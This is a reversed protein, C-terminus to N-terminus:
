RNGYQKYKAIPGLVVKQKLPIQERRMDRLSQPQKPLDNDESSSEENGEDITQNDRMTAADDDISHDITHNLTV